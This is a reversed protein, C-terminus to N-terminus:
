LVKRATQLSEIKKLLDALIERKELTTPPPNKLKENLYDLRQKGYQTIIASTYPIPNENHLWNDPACQCEVNREDWRVQTYKRKIFHGVQCGKKNDTPHFWGFNKKCVFCVPYPYKLHLYERLAYDLIKTLRKGSLLKPKKTKKPKKM